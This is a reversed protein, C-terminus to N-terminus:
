DITLLFQKKKKVLSKVIRRKPKRRFLFSVMEMTLVDKRWLAAAQIVLASTFVLVDTTLNTLVYM